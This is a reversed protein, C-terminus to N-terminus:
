AAGSSCRRLLFSPASGDSESSHFCRSRGPDISPVPRRLLSQRLPYQIGCKVDEQSEGASPKKRESYRRFCKSHVTNRYTWCNPSPVYGCCEGYAPPRDASNGCSECRRPFPTGYQILVAQANLKKGPHQKGKEGSRQSEAQKERQPVREQIVRYVPLVKRVFHRVAPEALQLVIYRTFGDCEGSCGLKEMMWERVRILKLGTNVFKKVGELDNFIDSVRQSFCRTLEGSEIIQQMQFDNTMWIRAIDMPTFRAGVSWHWGKPLDFIAEAHDIDLDYLLHNSFFKYLNKTLHEGQDILDFGEKHVTNHLFHPDFKHYEEYDGEPLEDKSCIGMTGGDIVYLFLQSRLIPAVYQEPCGSLVLANWAKQPEMECFLHEHAINQLMIGANAGLSFHLTHKESM